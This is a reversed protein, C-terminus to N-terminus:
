ECSYGAQSSTLIAVHHRSNVATGQMAVLLYLLMRDAAVRLQVRHSGTLVVVHDRSSVATGQMAVLAVHRRSYM